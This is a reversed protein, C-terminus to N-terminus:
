AVAGYPLPMIYQHGDDTQRDTQRDTQGIYMGSLRSHFPVALQFNVTLFGM